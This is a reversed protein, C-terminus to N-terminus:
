RLSRIAAMTLNTTLGKDARVISGIPVAVFRGDYIVSVATAKGARDSVVHDIAGLRRGDATRIAEGMKLGLTNENNSATTVVEATLATVPLSSALALASFILANKM